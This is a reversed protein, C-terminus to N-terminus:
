AAAVKGTAAPLWLEQRVPRVAAGRGRAVVTVRRSQLRGAGEALGHWQATEVSLELGAPFSPREEVVLVVAGRERARATLTRAAAARAHPPPALVVLDIGDVLAAAAVAWEAPAARVVVLRELDLGYGAAALVGMEDLGVAGCWSGAASPGAAVAMALSPGGRGAFRVVTGRRLGGDPLLAAIPPLVPLLRTRSAATPRVREALAQLRSTSAFM